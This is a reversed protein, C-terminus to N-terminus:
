NEFIPKADRDNPDIWMRYAKGSKKSVGSKFVFHAPVNSPRAPQQASAESGGGSAAQSPKPAGTSAFYAGVKAVDDVLAKLAEKDSMQAHADRLNAGRFVIWPADYGSGGKLTISVGTEPREPNTTTMNTEKTTTASTQEATAGFPDTATNDDAFPDYTM